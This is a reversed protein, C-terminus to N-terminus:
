IFYHHQYTSSYWSGNTCRYSRSPNLEYVTEKEQTKEKQKKPNYYLTYELPLCLNTRRAGFCLNFLTKGNERYQAAARRWVAAFLRVAETGQQQILQSEATSQGGFMCLANFVEQDSFKKPHHLMEIGTDRGLMTSSLYKCAVEPPINNLLAFDIMRQNLNERLNKNEYRGFGADLFGKEFEQMKRLSEEASAAGIGNVLEDLYIQAFGRCHDQYNGKRLETRWTFYGRLEDLSLDHYTSIYYRCLEGNWPENDEYNEMFKGQVYFNKRRQDFSMSGHQYLKRMRCIQEPIQKRKKLSSAKQLPKAGTRMAASQLEPTDQKQARTIFQQGYCLPADQYQDDDDHKNDLIVTFGSQEASSDPEDYSGTEDLMQQLAAEFREAFILPDM